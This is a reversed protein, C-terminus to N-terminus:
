AKAKLATIQDKADGGFLAGLTEATELANDTAHIVIRNKKGGLLANVADRIKRKILVDTHEVLPYRSAVKEASLGTPLPGPVKSQRCIVAHTPGVAEPRGKEFWNGGRTLRMLCTAEDDNLARDELITFREAIAKRAFAHAEEGLCDARLVFVSIDACVKALPALKEHEYVTLGKLVAHQNPWRVMLDVPMTWGATVLMDHLARLTIDGPMDVSAGVALRRLEALYDRAPDPETELGDIGTAIGCEAGKHYTLHYAFAWFLHDVCPGFVGSSQRERDDLLASALTPTIYPYGRYTAGREVVSAYFDCKATGPNANALRKITDLHGPGVLHDIDHRRAQADAADFPMEDLWRLVVYPVGAEELERYFRHLDGIYFRITKQKLRARTLRLTNELPALLRQLPSAM